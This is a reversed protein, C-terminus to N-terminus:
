GQEEIFDNVYAVVTELWAYASDFGLTLLVVFFLVSMVNSLSGFYQMAEAITVFALGTGFKVGDGAGELFPTRVVLMLM